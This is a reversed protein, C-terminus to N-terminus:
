DTFTDVHIGDGRDVNKGNKLVAMIAVKYAAKYDERTAHADDPFHVPCVYGAKHGLEIYRWDSEVAPDSKQQKGCIACTMMEGLFM